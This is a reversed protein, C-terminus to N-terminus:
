NKKDPAISELLKKAEEKSLEEFAKTEANWKEVTKPAFRKVLTGNESYEAGAMLKYGEFNMTHPRNRQKDHVVVRYGEVTTVKKAM